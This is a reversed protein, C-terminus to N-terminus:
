TLMRPTAELVRSLQQLSALNHVARLEDVHPLMTRMGRARPQFDAYRLLPNLWILRRCSRHLRAMAQELRVPDGRDLGDSILLVVAGRSLVRRSWDRNFVHLSDGISTGASWDAVTSGVRGLATDVDRCNLQRTINTLRTGFVFTHVRGGDHSLAHAFHLLMRAYGDMSGSVDCLLVLPPPLVRRRRWALRAPGDPTRLSAQLTARRDVQSGRPDTRWRRSPLSRRQWRLQHLLAQAERLEQESMQEFDRTTLAERRSWGTTGTGCSRETEGISWLSPAGSERHAQDSAADVRGSDLTRPQRPNGWLLRFAQDFLQQQEPRDLWAARLAGYVDDTRRLDVLQVARLGTQMRDAGIALGAGRLLRGFRVLNALLHGTSM